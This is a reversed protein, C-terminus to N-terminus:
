GAAASICSTGTASDPRYRYVFRSGIQEDLEMHQELAAIVPGPWWSIGVESRGAVAELSGDLIVASVTGRCIDAVLPTPDWRGDQLRISFIVTDLLVPRDALVLSDYPEALVEGRENRVRDIVQYLADARAQHSQLALVGTVDDVVTAPLAILVGTVIFVSSWMRVTSATWRSCSARIQNVAVVALISSSAALEIWYNHYAGIKALGVLPLFTAGWYIALLDSRVERITRKNAVYLLGAALAGIQYTFLLHINESLADLSFPNLNSEIANAVFAHTSWELALCCIGVIAVVTAAFLKCAGRDAFWLWICGAVAAAALTQKTLLALAALVAACVIRRRTVGDSLVAVSALGCAVGLTDVRYFAIWPFV